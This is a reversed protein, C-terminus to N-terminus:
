GTIDITAGGDVTIQQGTIWSAKESLLFSVADAINSANGLGLPYKSKMREVVEQNAFVGETMRTKVAGPLVSNVRVNPALEVALCRMLGDVGSKSAGYAAFAKSGRNSINSSIFVVSKLADGNIRRSALAQVILFPAFVNTNFTDQLDSLKTGRIPLLKSVGACHVFSSIKIGNGKVLAAISESLGDVNGLDFPYLCIEADSDCAKKTEELRVADRGNLVLNNRKSLEIAVARGIGSSAGTVLTWERQENMESYFRRRRAYHSGHDM